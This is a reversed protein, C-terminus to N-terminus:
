RGAGGTEVARFGPTELAEGYGVQVAEASQSKTKEVGSREFTM